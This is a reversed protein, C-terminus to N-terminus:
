YKLVYAPSSSLRDRNRIYALTTKPDSHGAFDQLDVIDAGRERATTLATVRFSHVTVHPDLGLRLVYRAVLHQVARRSLGKTRFGDFGRGRATQPPRFIAGNTDDRIGAVEIWRDLREFAEPHMPVRREKGGKGRIELIRHGGSVKYDMVRLRCLEGVRCGTYALVALLARDRMGQPTDDPPADILRRCDEPSLGLTRGDRPVPPSAVFKSHAPNAGSFGYASLYSYLSRVVTLKRSVSRNTLGKALLADRWSAIQAPRILALEEWRGDPM